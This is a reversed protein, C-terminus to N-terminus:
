GEWQSKTTYSKKMMVMKWSLMAYRDADRRKRKVGLYPRNFPLGGNPRQNLIREDGRRFSRARSGWEDKLFDKMLRFWDTGGTRTTDLGHGKGRQTYNL